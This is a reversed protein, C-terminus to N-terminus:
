VASGGPSGPFWFKLQLFLLVSIHFLYFHLLVRHHQVQIPPILIFENKLIEITKFTLEEGLTPSSSMAGLDLTVQEVSQALRTDKLSMKKKTREM